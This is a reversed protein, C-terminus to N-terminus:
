SLRLIVLHASVPNVGSALPTVTLPTPNGLPNRITLVSNLLTTTILCIGSIESTGTARGFITYNIPINNITVVLQGSETITIQFSVQYTGISALNFSSSTLRSIDTGLLPGDQPFQVDNGLAVIVSNDPPMLAYFDAYCVLASPGVSGPPGQPGTAGTAGIAGTAGTAGIPGQPGPAGQPGQPGQGGQAGQAGQPGQTGQPGQLGQFGQPGPPGPPGPPGAAGPTGPPGAPGPPGPPGQGGPSSGSLDLCTSGSMDFCPTYPIVQYYTLSTLPRQRNFSM